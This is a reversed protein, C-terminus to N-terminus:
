LDREGPNGKLECDDAEEEGDSVAEAQRVEELGDRHRESRRPVACGACRTDKRVDTSKTVQGGSPKGGSGTVIPIGVSSTLSHM